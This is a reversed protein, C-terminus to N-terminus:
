QTPYGPNQVLKKNASIVAQPIPFLYNKTADFKYVLGPILTPVYSFGGGPLPNILIGHIPTNLVTEATKWRILDWYRKDEFALEIRRERRLATRMAAQNLGPTLNPLASRKRVQNIADYVTGDPGSAENQAEAYNLLVEGYRFYYYNQGENHPNWDAAGLLLSDPNAPIRKRLYYGTQGGDGKDALNIENPNNALGQQTYITTNYFFSGNYVITQYFRQERNKYPNKPDYGSAPNDITLGNDMAYDDVLEQTPDTEGWSTEVGGATFTPGNFAGFAGGAVTPIYQRYFIAETNATNDLFLGQYNSYLNYQGSKIIQMNTSASAAFDHNFLQVWGLLALAAGQSAKGATVANAVPLQLAVATLEATIFNYTDQASSRPYFIGSGQTAIDLPVTIIPVGGYSMWLVHYFYSRLFRAEAISETKYSDPLSSTTVNQIFVNCKRIYTYNDNWGIDLVPTAPLDPSYVGPHFTTKSYYYNTSSISNDSYNDFSETWNNGNPLDTYIDNLFLGAASTSGFVASGTLISQPVVNLKSDLKKCSCIIIGAMLALFCNLLISKISNKMATM